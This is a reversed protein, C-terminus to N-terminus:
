PLNFLESRMRSPTMSGALDSRLQTDDANNSKIRAVSSMALAVIEPPVQAQFMPAIRITLNSELAELYNPPFSLPTQLDGFQTLQQWPYVRFLTNDSAVPWFTLSRLPFGGDDYVALPLNGPVNKIPVQEQWEQTTYIPIPYELPQSPNSLIVISARDIFAPRPANFDGGPGFTYIQKNSVLPFDQIATTFIMLGDGNWSDIMRNLSVLCDNAETASVPQEADVQNIFLMARRILDLATATSGPIAM